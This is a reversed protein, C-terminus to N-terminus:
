QVWWIKGDTIVEVEGVQDTRLVKVGFNNLLDLTEKHPHGFRNDRGDSIIALKPKASELLEQKLGNKSGHHPVKLVDVPTKLSAAAGDTGFDQIDGTLLAKFSGYTLLAVISQENTAVNKTDVSGLVKQENEKTTISEPSFAKNAELFDRTPWIIQFEIDEIKLIQGQSVIANPISDKHIENELELFSQDSKRIGPWVFQGVEYAKFTDIFGQYHDKDPNTNIVLDIKRDWFPVHESLCNLIKNDPGGDILIQTTKKYILIGDGQGVNCVVMHMRNDFLPIIALSFACLALFLLILSLKWNSSM